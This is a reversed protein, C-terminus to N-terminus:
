PAKASAALAAVAVLQLTASGIPTHLSQHARSPGGIGAACSLHHQGERLSTCTALVAAICLAAHVNMTCHVQQAQDM